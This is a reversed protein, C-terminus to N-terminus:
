ARLLTGNAVGHNRVIRRAVSLFLRLPLECAFTIGLTLLLAACLTSYSFIVLAPILPILGYLAGHKAIEAQLVLACSDLLLCAGALAMIETVARTLMARTLRQSGEFCAEIPSICYNLIRRSLRSVFPTYHAITLVVMVPVFYYLISLRKLGGGRQLAFVSIELASLFPLIWRGRSTNLFRLSRVPHLNSLHSLLADAGKSLPGKQNPDLLSESLRLLLVTVGIMAIAGFLTGYLNETKSGWNSSKPRSLISEPLNPMAPCQALNLYRKCEDTTLNRTVRSRVLRLLEVEDIAYVQVIGDDGASALLKGDPSWAVGNVNNRAGDGFPDDDTGLKVVSPKHGHLTLLENGTGADWIKATGDDSAAALKGGDPSWALSLLSTGPLVDPINDVTVLNGLMRDGTRGLNLLERGTAANWIKLTGDLRGIALKSGDPSWRSVMTTHLTSTPDVLGTIFSKGTAFQWIKATGYSQSAALRWEDTSWALNALRLNVPITLLNLGATSEWIKVERGQSEQASQSRRVDRGQSATALKGGDPSWVAIAVPSRHRLTLLNHLSAADFIDVTGDPSASALRTGDPSWSINSVSDQLSASSLLERGTTPQWIKVVGDASASALKRGDPSWDISKVPFKHGRLARLDESSGIEWIKATGDEGGTALQSGDPSWAVSQARGPLALTERGTALEWINTAGQQSGLSVTALKGGDPSWAISKVPSDHQLTLLDRETAVEWIKATSGESATALKSGDPSWTVPALHGPLTWLVRGTAADWIETNPQWRLLPDAVIEGESATALRNGDPSWAVSFVKGKHGRLTVLERGTEADRLVIADGDTTALKTGDPSWAACGFLVDRIPFGLLERGTAADWINARGSLTRGGSSVLTILKRGDPSPVVNNIGDYLAAPLSTLERGAHVDWISVRGDRNGTLLRTGAELWAVSVVSHNFYRTKKSAPLVLRVRSKLLADHLFQPLGPIMARQKGWAYLGLSLAREPDDNLSEGAWAFIAGAEASSQAARASSYLHLTVLLGGALLLVFASAATIPLRHRSLFKQARYALTDKRALVPLGDLHRRLDAEFQEASSYRRGPEKRLAFLLMNDIDGSLRKKLNAISGERVASKEAASSSSTDAQVEDVATSPNTPEEECIVREIEQLLRNGLHYPRQGTVLEYLIVGLTYIDTATTIPEGRIQEPSAYEPTMLRMGTLTSDLPALAVSQDLVKAIGFDLLKVTGDSTVLINSPKLDRHVVLNQHAYQVAQCVSRFLEIRQTVNLRREDCYTDIPQGEIYEMVYFPSGEDTAGADILRAINPHDLRGLIEREQRFRAVIEESAAAYQVVKLAFKKNFTGDARLASYVVGMGGRGIEECISYPGIRRGELNLSDFFTPLADATEPLLDLVGRSQEHGNLLIQVQRLLDDDGLAAKQLFDLRSEPSQELAAEFLNRVQILRRETM